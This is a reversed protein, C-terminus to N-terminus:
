LFMKAIRDLNADSVSLDAKMKGVQIMKEGFDVLSLLGQAQIRMINQKDPNYRPNLVAASDQWEAQRLISEAAERAYALDMNCIFQQLITIQGALEESKEQTLNSM